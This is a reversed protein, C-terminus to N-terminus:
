RGFRLVLTGGIVTERFSKVDAVSPDGPDFFNNSREFFATVTRDENNRVLWTFAARWNPRKFGQNVYFVGGTSSSLLVANFERFEAEMRFNRPADLYFGGRISRGTDFANFFDAPFILLPDTPSLAPNNTSNRKLREIEFRLFPRFDWSNWDHESRINFGFRDTNADLTPRVKDLDQRHEYDFTVQAPGATYDVTLFPIRTRRERVEAPLPAGNTEVSRQRYGVQLRLPQAWRWPLDRVAFRVEPSMVLNTYNRKGNMNDTSRRWSLAVAYRRHLDYDGRVSFDQLDRIQRANASYFNPQFRAYDTRWRLKGIRQSTEFRIAYDGVQGEFCREDLVSAGVIPPVAACPFNTFSAGTPPLGGSTWSLVGEARVNMKWPRIDFNVDSGFVDNNFAELAPRNGEPVLTEGTLCGPSIIRVTRLGTSTDDCLVRAEPLSQLLDKGHAWNLALWGQGIKKEARAGASLRSYPKGPSEPSITFLGSGVPSEICGPAPLAPPGVLSATCDLTVDRFANFDRYLSGWRDTFFGVTTFFRYNEWADKRFHFGKINQNMTLRSYNVLGDGATAEFTQGTLKVYTRQLSNREPDVRPNDTYRGVALIELRRTGWIPANRFLSLEFTQNIGQHLFSRDRNGQVQSGEVVHRLEILFRGPESAAGQPRAPTATPRSLTAARPRPAEGAPKASAAPPTAGAPRTVPANKVDPTAGTGTGTNAGTSSEQAFALPAFSTTTVLMAVIGQAAFLRM